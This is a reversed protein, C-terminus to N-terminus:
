IFLHGVCQMHSPARILVPSQVTCLVSSFTRILLSFDYSLPASMFQKYISQNIIAYFSDCGESLPLSSVLLQRNFYPTNRRYFFGPVLGRRGNIEGYYFGDVREEGYVLIREGAQFPLELRGHKGPSPVFDYVGVFMRKHSSSYVEHSRVASPNEEPGELDGTVPANHVTEVVDSCQGGSGLTQISFAQRQRTDVNKVITKAIHPSSAQQHLQGNLYIKYGTCKVGRNLNNETFKPPTWALMLTNRNIVKEVRFDKPPDPYESTRASTTSNRSFLPSLEPVHGNIRPFLPAGSRNQAQQLQYHTEVIREPSADLYAPPKQGMIGKWRGNKQDALSAPRLYAAPVLGTRGNVEALYYGTDDLPGKVTVKDWEQLRLEESPHHSRSFTLPDYNAVAIFLPDPPMHGVPLPENPSGYSPSMQGGQIHPLRSTHTSPPLLRLRRETHHNSRRIIPTVMETDSHAVHDQSDSVSSNSRSRQLDIMSVSHRSLHNAQQPSGEDLVNYEESPMRQEMLALEQLLSGPGGVMKLKRLEAGLKRLLDDKERCKQMLRALKTKMPTVSLLVQENKTELDHCQEQLKNYADKTVKLDKETGHLDSVELELCRLSDLANTRMDEVLRCEEQWQRLERMLGDVENTKATLERDKKALETNLAVPDQNLDLKQCGSDQLEELTKILEAEMIQVLERDPKSDKMELLAKLKEVFDELILIYRAKDELDKELKNIEQKLYKSEKEADELRRSSDSAKSKWVLLSDEDDSLDSVCSLPRKQLSKGIEAIKEKLSLQSKGTSAASTTGVSTTGHGSDPISGATDETRIPPSMMRYEEMMYQMEQEGGVSDHNVAPVYYPADFNNLGHVSSPTLHPETGNVPRFKRRKVAPSNGSSDTDNQTFQQSESESPLTLGLVLEENSPHSQNPVSSHLSTAKGVHIWREPDPPHPLRSEVQRWHAEERPSFLEDKDLRSVFDNVRRQRDDHSMSSYPNKERLGQVEKPIMEENILGAGSQDHLPQRGKDMSMLQDALEQVPRGIVNSQNSRQNKVRREALHGPGERRAQSPVSHDELIEENIDLGMHIQGEELLEKLLLISKNSEHLRNKLTEVEVEHGCVDKGNRLQEVTKQLHSNLKEVEQCEAERQDLLVDRAKLRRLEAGPVNVFKAEPNQYETLKKCLQENRNQLVVIRRQCDELKRPLKERQSPSLESIVQSGSELQQIRYKLRNESRQLNGIKEKLTEESEEKQRLKGELEVEKIKSNELEKDLSKGSTQLSNNDKSVKELDAHLSVNQQDLVALQNQLQTMHHSIAMNEQMMHNLQQSLEINANHLEALQKEANSGMTQMDSLKKNLSIEQNEQDKTRQLLNAEAKEVEKLREELYESKESLNLKEKELNELQQKLQAESTSLESLTENLNASKSLWVEEDLKYKRVLEKLRMEMIKLESIRDEMKTIQDELEEVKNFLSQESADLRNLQEKMNKESLQLERIRINQEHITNKDKRAIEHLEERDKELDSVQHKLHKELRELESIRQRFVDEPSELGRESGVNRSSELRVELERNMAELETVKRLLEAPSDRVEGGNNNNALQEQLDQVQHKLSKESLLLAEIKKSAEENGSGFKDKTKTLCDVSHVLNELVKGLEANLVVPLDSPLQYTRPVEDGVEQIEDHFRIQVDLVIDQLIRRFEELEDELEKVRGGLAKERVRLTQEDCQNQLTVMKKNFEETKNLGFFSDESLVSSSFNSVMGQCKSCLTKLSKERAEFEKKLTALNEVLISEKKLQESLKQNLKFCKACKKEDSLDINSIDSILETKASPNLDSKIPTSQASIPTAMQNLKLQNEKDQVFTDESESDCNVDTKMKVVKILANNEETLESIKRSHEEENLKLHSLSNELDSVTVLQSSLTENLESIKSEYEEEMTRIKLNAQSLESKLKESYSKEQDLKGSLSKECERLKQVCQKEETLSDEMSKLSTEMETTKTESVEMETRHVSLENQLSQITEEAVSLQEKYDENEGKLMELNVKLLEVTERLDAVEKMIDPVETFTVSNRLKQNEKMLFDERDELEMVREMLKEESNELLKVKENLKKNQVDAGQLTVLQESFNQNESELDQLREFMGTLKRGKPANLDDTDTSKEECSSDSKVNVSSSVPKSHLETELSELETVRDMLKCNAEELLSSKTEVAKMKEECEQEYSDLEIVRENLDNNEVRIQELEETVSDLNEQLEQNEKQLTSVEESLREGQQELEERVGESEELQQELSKVDGEYKNVKEMLEDEHKEIEMIRSTLDEEQQIYQAIEREMLEVKKELQEVKWEHEEELEKLRKKLDGEHEEMSDMRDLLDERSRHMERIKGEYHKIRDSSSSQEYMSVRNRLERETHEMEALTESLKIENERLTAIKDQLKEIQSNKKEETETLEEQLTKVKETLSVVSNGEMSKESESLETALSPANPPDSKERQERLRKRLDLNLLELNNVKEEFSQIREADNEAVKMWNIKLIEENEELEAVKATLDKNEIQLDKIQDKLTKVLLIDTELEEKLQLRQELLQNQMELDSIKQSAIEEAKELFQVKEALNIESVDKDLIIEKLERIKQQCGSLSKKCESESKRCIELNERVSNESSELDNITYEALKLKEKLQKEASEAQYVRDQLAICVQRMEELRSEFSDTNEDLIEEKISLSEELQSRLNLVEEQSKKLDDRLAVIEATCVTIDHAPSMHADQSMELSEYSDETIESDSKDDLGTNEVSVEENLHNRIEFVHTRENTNGVNSQDNQTQTIETTHTQESNNGVGSQDNHSEINDSHESQTTLAHQHSHSNPTHSDKLTMVEQAEREELSPSVSVPRERLTANEQQLRIVKSQLDQVSSELSEVYADFESSSVTKRSAHEGGNMEAPDEPITELAGVNDTEYEMVQFELTEVLDRSEDLKERLDSCDLDLQKVKETLKINKEQIESNKTEVAMLRKSTDALEKTLKEIQCQSQFLNTELDVRLKLERQPDLNTGCQSTLIAHLRQLELHEKMLKQYNKEIESRSLEECLEEDSLTGTSLSLSIDSSLSTDDEDYGYFTEKVGKEHPRLSKKKRKRHQVLEIRRDKEQVSLRLATLAKEQDACKQKLEQLNQTQLELTGKELREQHLQQTLQKIKKKCHECQDKLKKNEETTSHIQDKLNRTLTTLEVNKELFKRNKENLPKLRQELAKISQHQSINEQVLSENSQQLKRLELELTGIVTSLQKSQGTGSSGEMRDRGQEREIWRLGNDIDPVAYDRNRLKEIIKILHGLTSYVPLHCPNRSPPILPNDTYNVSHCSEM